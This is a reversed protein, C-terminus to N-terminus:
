FTGNILYLTLIANMQQFTYIFVSSILFIVLGVFPHLIKKTLFYIKRLSKM